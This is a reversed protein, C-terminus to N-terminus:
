YIHHFRSNRSERVTISGNTNIYYLMSKLIKIENERPYKHIQKKWNAYGVSEIWDLVWYPINIYQHGVRGILSVSPVFNPELEFEKDSVSQSAKEQMEVAEVIPQVPEPTSVSEVPEPSSIEVPEVKPQEVVEVDDDLLHSGDDAILKPAPVEEDDIVVDGIFKSVPKEVSQVVGIRGNERSDAIELIKNIMKDVSTNSKSVKIGRQKAYAQLLVKAEPATNNNKIEMMEGLDISPVEKKKRAM